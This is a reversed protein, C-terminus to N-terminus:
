KKASKPGPKQPTWADLDSQKILWDRGVKKAPLRRLKIRAQITQIKVGAIRAAQKTTLLKDADSM